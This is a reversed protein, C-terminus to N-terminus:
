SQPLEGLCCMGASEEKWKLAGCFRCEKNMVEIKILKHNEYDLTEDYKFAAKDFVGWTNKAFILRRQQARAAVARKCSEAAEITETDRLRWTLQMSFVCLKPSNPHRLLGNLHWINQRVEVGLKPGSQHRLLETLQM